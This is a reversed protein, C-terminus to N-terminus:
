LGMIDINLASRIVMVWLAISSLMYLPFRISVQNGTCQVASHLTRLILFGYACYVYTNDVQNTSVLFLCLAYFIVPLEFLNKLNNSAHNVSEPIASTLKEPTAITDPDISNQTIWTLRKAYMVLWVILTLLMMGIFPIFINM